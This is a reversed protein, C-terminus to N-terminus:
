WRRSEFLVLFPDSEGAYGLFCRNASEYNHVVLELQKIENRCQVQRAAELAAQVAPLLLSVGIGVIAIVVLLGVPTFANRSSSTM